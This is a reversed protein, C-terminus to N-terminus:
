AVKQANLLQKVQIITYPAFDRRKTGGSILKNITNHHLTIDNKACHKLFDQQTEFTKYMVRFATLLQPDIYKTRNTKAEKM